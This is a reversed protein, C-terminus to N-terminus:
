VARVSVRQAVACLLKIVSNQGSTEDSVEVTSNGVPMLHVDDAEATPTTGDVTFWVEATADRNLVEIRGANTELTVTSVVGGALTVHKTQAM